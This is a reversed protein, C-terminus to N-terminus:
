VLLDALYYRDNVQDEVKYNSLGCWTQWLCIKFLLLGEYSLRGTASVGNQCYRNIVKAIPRWDLLINIQNFFDEKIKRRSVALDAFGITLKKEYRFM